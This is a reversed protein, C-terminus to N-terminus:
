ANGIEQSKDPLRPIIWLLLGVGTLIIGSSLIGFVVPLGHHSFQFRASLFEGTPFALSTLIGYLYLRPLDLLYGALSFGFLIIVSFRVPFIWGPLELFNLFTLIGIILAALNFILMALGM